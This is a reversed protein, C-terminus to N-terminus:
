LLNDIWCFIYFFYHKGIKWKRKKGGGFMGGLGGLAGGGFQKMM